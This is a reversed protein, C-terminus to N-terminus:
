EKLIKTFLTILKTIKQNNAHTKYIDYIICTSAILLLQPPIATGFNRLKNFSIISLILIFIFYINKTKGIINVFFYLFFIYFSISPISYGHEIFYPIQFFVYIDYLSNTSFALTDNINVLGIVIKSSVLYNLYPLYYFFFDENSYLIITLPYSLILIFIFIILKKKHFLKRYFFYYFFFLGCLLTLIVVVNNLPIFIHVVSSLLYLTLFGLIGLFGLDEKSITNKLLLNNILQGYGIPVLSVLLYFIFHIVTQLFIM